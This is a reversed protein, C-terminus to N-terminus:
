CRKGANAQGAEGDPTAQLAEVEANLGREVCAPPLVPRGETEGAFRDM